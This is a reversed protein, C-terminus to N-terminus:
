KERDRHQHLFVYQSDPGMNQYLWDLAQERSLHNKAAALEYAFEGAAQKEAIRAEIEAREHNAEVMYLDYNKAEV